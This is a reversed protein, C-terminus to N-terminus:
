SVFGARFGRLRGLALPGTSDAAGGLLVIKTRALASAPLCDAIRAIQDIGKEATMAGVMGVVVTDAPWEMEARWDRPAKAVPKPVGSHVVCIRSPAVGSRVMAAKVAHSIAIFRDVRPGYKVRVSKLPFTVRRTVVLPTADGALAIRAIAHSRADHAHVVDPHWIRVLARIRKASRLDWDARMQASATAMGMGQARELLPSGSVGVILPEHGRSRLSSTLLLVQRQGGRWARGADLHLSRLPM